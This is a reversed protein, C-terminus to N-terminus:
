YRGKPHVKKEIIRQAKFFENTAQRIFALDEESLEIEENYYSGDTLFYYPYLEDWDVKVRAM